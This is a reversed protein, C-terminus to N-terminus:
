RPVTETWGYLRHGKIYSVVPAPTLFDIPRALAIRQRIDTASIEILPAVLLRERLPDVLPPLSQWDIPCGPRQIVWFVVEQMLASAERWTHLQPLLDAGILWHVEDMGRAKLARATDITFSPGARDIELRDVDFLDNGKVAARTMALRDEADALDVAGPKHPPQCSPIFLIRQFNANEAIARACILHAHHIPNFSGGVCLTKIM